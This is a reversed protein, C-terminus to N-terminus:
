LLSLYALAVEASRHAAYAFSEDTGAGGKPDSVSKIVICPVMHKQAVAVCSYSEMDVISVDDGFHHKSDAFQQVTIGKEVLVATSIGSSLDYSGSDVVVMKGSRYEQWVRPVIVDGVTFNESVAGAIGSVVVESISLLSFLKTLVKQTRRQGVGTCVFVCKKGSCEAFHYTVGRHTCTSEVEVKELLAELELPFATVVAVYTGTHKKICNTNSFLWMNSQQRKCWKTRKRIHVM